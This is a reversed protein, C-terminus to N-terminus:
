SRETATVTLVMVLAAVAGEGTDRQKHARWGGGGQEAGGGSWVRATRSSRM